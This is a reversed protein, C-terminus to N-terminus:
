RGVCIGARCHARRSRGRGGGMEAECLGQAPCPPCAQHRFAGRCHSAVPAPGTEQSRIHASCRWAAALRLFFGRVAPDSLPRTMTGSRGDLLSRDYAGQWCFQSFLTDGKLPAGFGAEPKITIELLKM